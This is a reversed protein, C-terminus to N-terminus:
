ERAEGPAITERDKSDIMTDVGLHAAQRLDDLAEHPTEGLGAIVPCWFIFYSRSVEDFEIQINHGKTAM